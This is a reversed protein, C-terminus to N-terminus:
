FLCPQVHGGHPFCHCALALLENIGLRDWATLKLCVSACQKWPFLCLINFFLLIGLTRKQVCVCVGRKSQAKLEKTEM